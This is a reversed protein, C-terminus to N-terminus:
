IELCITLLESFSFKSLHCTLIKKTNERDTVYKWFVFLVSVSSVTQKSFFLFLAFDQLCNYICPFSCMFVSTVKGYQREMGSNDENVRFSLLIIFLILIFDSYKLHLGKFYLGCNLLLILPFYCIKLFRLECFLENLHM